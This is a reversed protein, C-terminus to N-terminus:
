FHTGQEQNCENCRRGVAQRVRAFMGASHRIQDFATFIREILEQRTNVPNISVVSKVYGCVCFDLPTLDASRAPWAVHGGRGIWKERYVRNLHAGVQLSVHAPAGDHQFWMERHIALPIEEMLSPLTNQVLTSM